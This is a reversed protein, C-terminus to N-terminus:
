EDKARSVRIYHLKDRVFRFLRTQAETRAVLRVSDFVNTSTFERGRQVLSTKSRVTTGECLILWDSRLRAAPIPGVETRGSGWVITQLRSFEEAVRRTGGGADRSICHPFQEALKAQALIRIGDCCTPM